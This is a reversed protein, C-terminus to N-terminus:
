KVPTLERETVPASDTVLVTGSSSAKPVNVYIIPSTITHDQLHQRITSEDIIGEGFEVLDADLENAIDTAKEDKSDLVAQLNGVLWEELESIKIRGLLYDRIQSLLREM